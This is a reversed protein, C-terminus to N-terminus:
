PRTRWWVVATALVGVGFALGVSHLGGAEPAYFVTAVNRLTFFVLGTLAIGRKRGPAMLAAVLIFVAEATAEVWTLGGQFVGGYFLRAVLMQWLVWSLIAAPFALAYRVLRRPQFHPPLSPASTM